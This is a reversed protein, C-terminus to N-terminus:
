LPFDVRIQKSFLKGNADKGDIKWMVSRLTVYLPKQNPARVNHVSNVWEQAKKRSYRRRQAAKGVANRIASQSAQAFDLSKEDLGTIRWINNTGKLPQWSTTESLSELPLVGLENKLVIVSQYRQSVKTVNSTVKIVNGNINGSIFTYVAGNAHTLNANGSQKVNLNPILLSMINFDAKLGNGTTAAPSPAPQIAVAAPKTATDAAPPNEKKDAVEAENPESRTIHPKLDSVMDQLKASDSETVITSPDGLVIPGRNNSPMNQCSCFLIAWTLITLYSFRKGM